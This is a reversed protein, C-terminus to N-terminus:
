KIQIDFIEILWQNRLSGQLTTTFIFLDTIFNIIFFLNLFGTSFKGTESRFEVLTGINELSQGQYHNEDKTITFEISIM